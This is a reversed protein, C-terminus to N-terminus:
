SESISVLDYAGLTNFWDKTIMFLGGLFTSNLSYFVQFRGAMSPTKIPATPNKRREQRAGVPLYDWKFVLNWDFGGRLDASAAVYNFSDM